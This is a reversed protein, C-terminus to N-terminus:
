RASTSGRRVVHHAVTAQQVAVAPDAIRAALFELATAALETKDFAVTTLGPVLHAAEPIDDYGTVAVETPVGVGRRHLEGLAGLALADTLCLLADPREGTDWHEAVTRAGGAPHWDRCVWELAPDSTLGAAALAQRHGEVRLRSSESDMVGVVAIRRRGQQLLHETLEAMAAANDVWVHDVGPAEVEGILVVPPLTGSRNIASHELLVPNLVLGDVLHSRARSVLAAERAADVGTQEIHISWGHRQGAEVFAQAMTASYSTALDPLAIAIVGTRGNRLGRASLNPVYDLDHLAREVRAKTEPRVHILGNIVNSVTKPSVGARQAVDKVTPRM